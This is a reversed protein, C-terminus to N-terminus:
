NDPRGLNDDSWSILLLVTSKQEHSAGISSSSSVFTGQKADYNTAAFKAVGQQMERKYLAIEPLTTATALPIPLNVSPVGILLTHDDVSLAGCRIEVITDANGKDNSLRLGQQLLSDRIAGIAYKSDYGEFNSSDVFVRSGNPVALKLNKAAQDAAASILLQETATRPPDTSRNTVCGALSLAVLSIFIVCLRM